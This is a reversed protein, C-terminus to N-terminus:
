SVLMTVALAAIAAQVVDFDNVVDKISVVLIYVYCVNDM